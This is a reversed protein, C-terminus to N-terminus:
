NGDMTRQISAHKLDKPQEEQSNITNINSRTYTTNRAHHNHNNLIEDYQQTKTERQNQQEIQNQEKTTRLAETYTRQYQM